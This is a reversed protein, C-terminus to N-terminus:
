VTVKREDLVVFLGGILHLSGTVFVEKEGEWSRILDVAEEITPLAFTESNPSLEQWAQQLEHQVKLSTVDEASTNMSM